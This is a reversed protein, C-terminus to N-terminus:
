TRLSHPPPASPEDAVTISAAVSPVYLPYASYLEFRGGAVVGGFTQPNRSQYPPLPNLGIGGYLKGTEEFVPISGILSRLAARATAGSHEHKERWDAANPTPSVFAGVVWASRWCVYGGCLHAPLECRICELGEDVFPAFPRADTIVIESEVKALLADICLQISALLTEHGVQAAIMQDLSPGCEINPGDTRKARAGTLFVAASRVQDAMPGDDEPSLSMANQMDTDSVITVYERIRELSRLTPTFEFDRGERAPSWYNRARGLATRGAAGHVM